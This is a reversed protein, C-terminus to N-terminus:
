ELPIGVFHVYKIYASYSGNDTRYDVDLDRSGSALEAAYVMNNNVWNTTSGQFTRWQENVTTGDVQFRMEVEKAATGSMRASGLLLWDGTTGVTWGKSLKEVYTTSTTDSSTDDVSDTYNAFRGGTLRIAAVRARRIKLAHGGDEKCAALAITQESTDCTVVKFSAFSIWDDTYNSYELGEDLTSGEFKAAAKVWDSDPHMEATWILLYDGSTSPTFNKTVYDTMTATLSTESDATNSHWELQDKRLAIIRARRIYSTESSDEARYDITITHQSNDLSTITHATFCFGDEDYYRGRSVTAVTTSDVELRVDTGDNQDSARYEAFGLVLWDDTGTPTFQLTVKNQWDTSTTSSEDDSSAMQYTPGGTAAIYISLAQTDTDATPTQSDTVKVTFNSTGSTTPTGSITGTSSGLSLGAPLSGSDISWTYPTTGGTAVVTQSYATDVEGDPLSTTTINLDAPDITISIAQDDTDATPTQSDTARVTFDYDGQTTPTGSVVGTSSALSLGAPLSGSVVAWTISPLGGMAEITESYSVGEQGNPLDLTTIQLDTVSVSISLAQTDNDSPSAADTAKVTFNSVGTATPKGSIEGTSSSLSLGSPLSGSDISWTLPSKGGTAAVMKSYATNVYGAALSTTTIDVTSYVSISLAQTDDTTPNSSDEVKVTFNSTGTGTPTGSIIGNTTNLTLGGPLSGSIISWTFPSAGGSKEVTDNYAVGVHGEDLSTSTIEVPEAGELPIGVFHVYKLYATKGTDDSRYDFDLDHSGSTLETVYLANTNMWNTVAGQPTRYQQGITSNDLEIRAEVNKGSDSGSQRASAMLLWDGTTAVSWNKTHKQVFSTSTTDSSTDDVSSTYNSLRSDSLRIAAVRARRIKLAHGGDEKCAALAITQESTDCTVAKFSAFSVWDDTYNGYEVFEDLTSSEFKAAAKVWDSDPHMEATWILLYDGSTSPTFNKTVYDTMSATLSQESDAVNSHWELQDKRIAIIRARRIYSTEGSDEARYDITITHQSDDLSTVTHATFCFGDDDTYRGRSVTAVTTSDVELRVDTGDNQDSARYEAFALILWDDTTPPTFQLTVKNQWDTSTTSSEDESSATQCTPGGAGYVHISLAQTDTDPTGQSDTVKITFNYDGSSTPTGSIVGTSSALSLGTPLSGSDISWTYPTVGGTASATDSYSQDVTGDNLVTTTIILDAPIVTISLAQDDTDATPTQSDTARVTFNATEDTTATGSIVGTTSNLSLGGPLSGSVISWTIAPLGGSCALTQNYYEGEQGNPLSTTTVDLDAISVSISLAQTDTDVPYESDYGIITFNFTGTATPKGSIVGTTSTLDLGDPLDGSYISWYYPTKGGTGALTQSYSTNIYGAPLSSTTIQFNEYVDITCDLTDEYPTAQSDVVKVTFESSGTSTPTGSIVGTSTNLSLGGPLSGTEISWTYPTVGGTAVIEQNYSQSTQGDELTTTLIELPMPADLPVAAIHAYKIYATASGDTSKYDMDITHNGSSLKAVGLGFVNMYDSTDVPERIQNSFTTTNDLETRVDPAYSISGGKVAASTLMLWKWDAIPNNFTETVKQQYSTQSTSSEGDSAEYAADEWRSGKLRIAIVRPRRVGHYTASGSEAKAELSVTQSSAGLEVVKMSTWTFKSKNRHAHSSTEDLVTSNLMAKIHNCETVDYSVHETSYLLLYKGTTSPTFTTSAYPALTTSIQEFTGDTIPDDQHVTFDGKRIAVIMLDEIETYSGEYQNQITVKVEHASTSVDSLYKITSFSFRNGADKTRNVMEAQLVGDIKVRAEDNSGTSDSSMTGSVLIIWDDVQTPTFSFSAAQEWTYYSGTRFAYPAYYYAYGDGSATEGVGMIIAQTDNAAPDQSDTVKFTCNSQGTTTPTGSIEGTSSNLSLGAPLTGSDLSWTFPTQGGQATLTQSYATGVSAGPLTLTTIELTELSVTISLAQTDTDPTVQSDTAKVTFNSEGTTTPTGSIVGDSGLSLGAPLSGSDLSWTYPTWGGTAQLQESYSFAVYGSPLSTTTVTLDPLTTISISLGQTDTDAPNQDDSVQITFNPSEQTTPTGSIVGTSSNLSLGAPLSGSSVSWTYPPKGGDAEVTDSYSVNVYGNTLGTTTIELPLINVDVSLAQTDSDPSGASDTAQVTFNFTGDETASGSIIGTSSGLSWGGPLSGSIVSWTYPKVGGYAHLGESYVVGLTGDALTTTTITVDGTDGYGYAGIEMTGTGGSPRSEVTQHKVYQYAVDYYPFCVSPLDKGANICDSGAALKFDQNAYDVFGPSSGVVNGGLDNASQIHYDTPLWNNSLNLIGEMKLMYFWNGGRNNYFINNYADITPQDDKMKVFYSFDSRYSIVTNNYFQCPGPRCAYRSAGWGYQMVHSIGDFPDDPEIIINGYVFDKGYRPDERISAYDYSDVLNLERGGGEIWNYRIITGCSRDKINCGSTGSLPPGFHNYQYLIGHCETYAQHEKDHDVVCNDYVYCGEITIDESWGSSLFGNGNDHLKINRYTIHKGAEVRLGACFLSYTTPGYRGTFTNPSKGNKVELNEIVIYEPDNHGGWTEPLVSGGIKIVSRNDGWYTLETPDRVIADAGDIVPLEGGSGAIGQVTIPSQATGQGFIGFNEKYATTRYYIKVTDGATLDELPVDTINSYTKGPGVEYTTACAQGAVLFVAAVLTILSFFASM